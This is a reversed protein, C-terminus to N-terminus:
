YWKSTEIKCYQNSAVVNAGKFAIIVAVIVTVIVAVDSVKIVYTDVTIIVSLIIIEGVYEVVVVSIGANSANVVVKYM